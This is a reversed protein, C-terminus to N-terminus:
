VFYPRMNKPCFKYLESWLTGGAARGCFAFSCNNFNGLRINKALLAFCFYYMHLLLEIIKYEFKALFLNINSHNHRQIAKLYKCDIYVHNFSLRKSIFALCFFSLPINTNHKQISQTFQVCGFDNYILGANLYKFNPCQLVDVNPGPCLELKVFTFTKYFFM